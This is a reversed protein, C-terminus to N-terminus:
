NLIRDDFWSIFDKTSEMSIFTQDTLIRIICSKAVLRIRGFDADTVQYKGSHVIQSRIGYLDKVQKSLQKRSPVGEGILHAVRTRLRYLLEDKENDALVLSELAIAYLLFAQEKRNETTARGAWQIASLLREQFDGKRKVLLQSAASLGVKRTQDVDGLMKASLPALPGVVQRSVSYNRKDEGSTILTTVVTRFRDGPLFFYGNSFPILDSFFNMVDFTLRLEKLALTKAAESETALVTLIGVPKGVLGEQVMEHIADLSEHQEKTSAQQPDSGHIQARTQEATLVRFTVNGFVFPLGDPALGEVPYCVQFPYPKTRIASRLGQIAKDLRKEFSQDRRREQIDISELIAKQYLQEIAKASIRESAVAGILLQLCKRYQEAEAADLFLTGEDAVSFFIAPNTRGSFEEMNASISKIYEAVTELAKSLSDSSTKSAKKRNSM